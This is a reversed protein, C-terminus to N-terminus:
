TTTNSLQIRRIISPVRQDSLKDRIKSGSPPSVEELFARLRPPLKGPKCNRLERKQWETLHFPPQTLQYAVSPIYRKSKLCALINMIWQGTHYPQGLFCKQKCYDLCNFRNVGENRANMGFGQSLREIVVEPTCNANHCRYRTDDGYTCLSLRACGKHAYRVIAESIMSDLINTFMSGSPVGHYKKFWKAGVKYPTHTIYEAIYALVHLLSNRTSVKSGCAYTTLDFRSFLNLVAEKVLWHPVTADFASFDLQVGGNCFRHHHTEPKPIYDDPLSDIVPRAFMAEMATVEIPFCWAVRKKMRQKLLDFHARAVFVGAPSSPKYEGRKIFHIRRRIYGVAKKSRLVEGKTTYGLNRYFFGPSSRLSQPTFREISDNFHLPRYQEQLFSFSQPFEFDPPPEM